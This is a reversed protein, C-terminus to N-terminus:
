SSFTLCIRACVGVLLGINQWYSNHTSRFLRCWSTDARAVAIGSAQHPYIPRFLKSGTTNHGPPLSCWCEGPSPRFAGSSSPLVVLAAEFKKPCKKTPFIMLVWSLFSLLLVVLATEFTKQAIKTHFFCVIISMKPLVSLTTSLITSMAISLFFLFFTSSM